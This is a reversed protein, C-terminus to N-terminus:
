ELVPTLTELKVEARSDTPCGIFIRTELVIMSFFLRAALSLVVSDGLIESHCGFGV